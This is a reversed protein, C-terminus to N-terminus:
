QKEDKRTIIRGTKQMCKGSTSTNVDKFKHWSM